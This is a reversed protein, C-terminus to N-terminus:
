PKLIIGIDVVIRHDKNVVIGLCIIVLSRM